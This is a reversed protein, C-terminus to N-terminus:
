EAQEVSIDEAIVQITNDRLHLIFHKSHDLQKLIAPSSIQGKLNEIMESKPIQDLFYGVTNRDIYKQPIFPSHGDATTIDIKLCNKFTIKHRREQPDDLYIELGSSNYTLTELPTSNFQFDSLLKHFGNSSRVVYDKWKIDIPAKPSYLLNKPLLKKPDKIENIEIDNIDWTIIEILTDALPLVYHKIDRGAWDLLENLDSYKWEEKSVKFINKILKSNKVEWIHGLREPSYYNTTCKAIDAPILKFNIYGCDINKRIGNISNFTVDFGNDSFYIEESTKDGLFIDPRVIELKEEQTQDLNIDRPQEYNTTFM